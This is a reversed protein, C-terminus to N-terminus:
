LGIRKEILEKAEKLADEIPYGEQLVRNLADMVIELAIPDNLNTPAGTIHFVADKWLLRAQQGALFPIPEEFIPDDWVAKVAPFASTVEFARLQVDPNTTLFKVLKWAAEKHASAEPIAYWSGGRQMYLGGPLQAAGWLGATEPCIWNKFHGLMWAGIIQVAVTGKQFAGYWEGTWQGIQADLGNDRIEKAIQFARVFRESDVVCNGQDDFFETPGGWLVYALDPANDILWHDIKGDGDADYTLRKGATIFDEWTKIEDISVGREAFVDRRWFMTAPAIDAPMAILRGDLTHSQKWAYPVYLNAYAEANYPPKALDVLGGEAAFKAIYGIEVAVVDPVGIGAALVTLLKTHHDVYGAVELKVEIDPYLANFAPLVAKIVSDLDPYVAVTITVKEQAWVGVTVSAALLALILFRKM